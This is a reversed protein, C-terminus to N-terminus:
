VFAGSVVGPLCDAQEICYVLPGREIASCGYVADVDRSARTRRSRLPVELIVQDGDQWSRELKVYSGPDRDVVGVSGNVAVRPEQCWEPIRLSLEWPSDPSSLVTIQVKGDWPYGTDVQLQLRGDARPLSVM